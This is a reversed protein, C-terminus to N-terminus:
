CCSWWWRRCCADRWPAGAGPSALVRMMGADTRAMFIGSSLVVLGIATHLAMPIYGALGVFDDVRYAYGTLALLATMFGLGALLESPRWGRRATAQVCLLAAGVLLFCLATNPAMRNPLGAGADLRSAFLWRDVGGSADLAYAMLKATAAAIIAVALARTAGRHRDRVLLATGALVFLVATAPNMAVLTPSLRKLADLDAAWGALVLCGLVVALWGSARPWGALWPLARRGPGAAPAHGAGPGPGGPRATAQVSPM